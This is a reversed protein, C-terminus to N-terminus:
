QNKYKWKFGKCTLYHKGSPSVYGRCCKIIESNLRSNGLAEGADKASKFEAIVMDTKADIQIVPISNSESIRKKTIDTHHNNFFPNKDGVRQKACESLIHRQAESLHKGFMPSKEGVRLSAKKSLIKRTEQSHSKGKFPNDHTKYYDKLKQVMREKSEGSISYGKVGDGGKTQNYGNNYSDFLEIFYMELQYLEKKAEEISAYNAKFLVEYKFGSKGYRKIANNLEKNRYSTLSGFEKKRRTENTTQGIYSLGEPCIYRYVVGTIM